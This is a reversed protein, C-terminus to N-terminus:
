RQPLIRAVFEEAIENTLHERSPRSRPVTGAGVPPFLTYPACQQSYLEETHVTGTGSGTSGDPYSVSELKLM